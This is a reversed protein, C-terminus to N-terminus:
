EFGTLLTKFMVKLQKASLKIVDITDLWESFLKSAQEQGAFTFADLRHHCLNTSTMRAGLMLEQMVENHGSGPTITRKRTRNSM